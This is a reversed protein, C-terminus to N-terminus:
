PRAKLVKPRLMSTRTGKADRDQGSAMRSVRVRFLDRVLISTGKVVIEGDVFAEATDHTTQRPYKGSGASAGWYLDESLFFAVVNGLGKALLLGGDEM